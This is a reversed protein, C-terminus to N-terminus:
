NMNQFISVPEKGQKPKWKFRIILIDKNLQHALDISSKTGKSEGDWFCIIVDSNEVITKNRIPGAKKGHKKWNPFFLLKEVRHENAWREGLKDAGVAGGSVMNSIKNIYPSMTRKVLQYDDFTRSGIIAVSLKKKSTYKNFTFKYGNEEKIDSKKKLEWDEEKFGELLIDGEVDQEIRTLYLTDALGFSKKYLQGGGIIYLDRDDLRHDKIAMHLNNYVTAGEAVYDPNRSIVINLRNPLPRYKEPISEWCKRGMIVINGNTITKFFKLDTPLDWPLDNNTGIVNNKSAAVIMKVRGM